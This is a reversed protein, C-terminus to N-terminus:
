DLPVLYKVLRVGDITHAKGYLYRDWAEMVNRLADMEAHGAEDLEGFDQFWEAVGSQHQAIKRLMGLGSLASDIECPLLEAAKPVAGEGEEDLDQAHWRLADYTAMLDFLAADMARADTAPRETRGRGTRARARGRVHKVIQQLLAVADAATKLYQLTYTMGLRVRM